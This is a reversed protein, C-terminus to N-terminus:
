PGFKEVFFAKAGASTVRISFGKLNDDYYRKQATKGKILRM